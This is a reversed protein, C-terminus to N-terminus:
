SRGEAFAILEDSFRERGEREILELASARTLEYIKITAQSRSCDFTAVNM